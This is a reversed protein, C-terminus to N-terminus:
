RPSIKIKGHKKAENKLHSESFIIEITKNLFLIRPSIFLLNFMHFSLFMLQILSISMCIYKVREM